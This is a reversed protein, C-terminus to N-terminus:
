LYRIESIPKARATAWEAFAGSSSEWGPLMAIATARTLIATLDRALADARDFHPIERYHCGVGYVDEDMDIPSIVEHGEARLLDAAAQFAPANWYVYGTMPGAIYYTQM